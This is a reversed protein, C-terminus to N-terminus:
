ARPMQGSGRTSSDTPGTAIADILRDLQSRAAAAFLRRRSGTPERRDVVGGKNFRGDETPPTCRASDESGSKVNRTDHSRPLHNRAREIISRQHLLTERHDLDLIEHLREADMSSRGAHAGRQSRDEPALVLDHAGDVAHREPNLATLSDPEEPGVAGALGRCQLHERPQKVGGRALDRDGAELRAPALGREQLPDRQDHSLLVLEQPVQRRRLGVREVAGQEVHRAGLEVLRHRLEVLQEIEGVQRGLRGPLEREALAHLALQGGRQQMARGRQEEVLRGDPEVHRHLDGDALEDARVVLAVLGRHQQRRVVHLVDGRQARADDDDVLAVEDVVAVQARQDALHGGVLQDREGQGARDRRVLELAQAVHDAGVAHPDHKSHRLAPQALHDAV